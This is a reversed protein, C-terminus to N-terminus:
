LGHCELASLFTAPTVVPPRPQSLSLLHRDGSVIVSAGAERALAVVFDDDPDEAVSPVDAPDHSVLARADLLDLFAAVESEPLRRSLKVSGLTREVEARLKASVVLDFAGELWESLLRAPVGNPSLAASVLVNTDLVVSTV